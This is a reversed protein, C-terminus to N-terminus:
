YAIHWPNFDESVVSVDLILAVTVGSFFHVSFRSLSYISSATSCLKPTQLFSM